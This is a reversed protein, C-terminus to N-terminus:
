HNHVSPKSLYMVLYGSRQADKNQEAGKQDKTYNNKIKAIKECQNERYQEFEGATMTVCIRTIFDGDEVRERSELHRALSYLRDTHEIVSERSQNDAM